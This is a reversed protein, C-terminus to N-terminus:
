EPQPGEAFFTFDPEDANTLKVQALADAYRINREIGRKIGEMDGPALYSGFRARVLDALADVQASDSVPPTQAQASGSVADAALAAPVLPSATLQRLFVRRSGGKSRKQKNM